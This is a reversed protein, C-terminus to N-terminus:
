DFMKDKITEFAANFDVAKGKYQIKKSKGNKEVILEINADVDVRNKNKLKDYIFNSLINIVLPLVASSCFILAINIIESHLEIMEFTEDSACIEININDKKSERVFYDFLELTNESFVNKGEGRFNEYPLLLVSANKISQEYEKPIYPKRYIDEFTCTDGLLVISKEGCKDNSM